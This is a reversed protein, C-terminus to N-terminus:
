ARRRVAAMALGFLGLGTLVVASPEPIVEGDPGLPRVRFDEYTIRGQSYDYVGISGALYAGVVDLELQGDVYLQLGTSTYLLEFDYSRGLEWGTSGFNLGRELETMDENHGWAEADSIPGNARSLALGEEAAGVRINDQDDKKWDILLYDEPDQYGVFLGLFDDDQGSNVRFTGTIQVNLYAEDSILAYRTFGGGVNSTAASGDSTIDWGSGGNTFNVETWDNFNVPTAQSPAAMLVAAVVLSARVFWKTMM